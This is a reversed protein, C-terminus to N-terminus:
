IVPDPHVMCTSHNRRLCEKHVWFGSIINQWQLVKVGLPASRDENSLVLSQSPLLFFTHIGFSLMVWCWQLYFAGKSYFIKWQRYHMWHSTHLHCPGLDGAWVTSCTGWWNCSGTCGPWACLELLMRLVCVVKAQVISNNHNKLM